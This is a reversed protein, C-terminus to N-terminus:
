PLRRLSQLAVVIQRSLNGLLGVDCELVDFLRSADFIDRCRVNQLPAKPKCGFPSARSLEGHDACSSSLDLDYPRRHRSAVSAHIDALACGLLQLALHSTSQYLRELMLATSNPAAVRFGIQSQPSRYTFFCSSAHKQPTCSSPSGNRTEPM